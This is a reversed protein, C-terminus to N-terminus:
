GGATILIYEGSDLLGASFPLIDTLTKVKAKWQPGELYDNAATEESAILVAKQALILTKYSELVDVVMSVRWLGQRASTIDKIFYYRNFAPIYAYNFGTLDEGEIMLDPSLVSTENRLTGSLTTGGTLTKGVKNSESNNVYLTVNM